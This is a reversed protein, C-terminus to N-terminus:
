FCAEMNFHLSTFYNLYINKNFKLSAKNQIFRETVDITKKKLYIILKKFRILIFLLMKDNRVTVSTIYM